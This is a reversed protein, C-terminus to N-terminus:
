IWHNGEMPEGRGSMWTILLSFDVFKIHVYGTVFPIKKHSFEIVKDTTGLNIFM